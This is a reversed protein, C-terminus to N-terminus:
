YCGVGTYYTEYWMRDTTSDYLGVTVYFATGGNGAWNNYIYGDFSAPGSYYWSNPSNLSGTANTVTGFYQPAYPYSSEIWADVVYATASEGYFQLTFANTPGTNAVSTGYQISVQASALKVTFLFALAAIFIKLKM